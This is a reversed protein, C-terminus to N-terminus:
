VTASVITPESAGTPRFFPADGEVTCRRMLRHRPYHDALARHETCREDWIAVDGVQWRWRVFRNPDEALHGLYGLLLDSEARHMGVVEEMFFSLFLAQRGTEEHTRVLPHVAGSCREVILPGIEPGHIRMNVEVFRRGPRHVVRLTECFRRMPESLADYAAHLSCWLTDGGVPPIDLASLIGVKPPESWWTIDTHWEDADPPHEASDEIRSLPEAGGTLRAVPFVMPTGWRTALALHEDDSLHQERFFLVHHELLAAHIAQFGEDDLRGLHVGHVRAGIAATLPSLEIGARHGNASTAV